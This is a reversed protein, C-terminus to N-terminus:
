AREWDPVIDTYRKETQMDDARYRWKEAVKTQVFGDFVRCKHPKRLRTRNYRMLRNKECNGYSEYM